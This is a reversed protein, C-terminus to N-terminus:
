SFIISCLKGLIFNHTTAKAFLFRLMFIDHTNVKNQMNTMYFLQMLTDKISLIGLSM